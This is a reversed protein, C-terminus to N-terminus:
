CGTLFNHVNSSLPIKFQLASRPAPMDQHIQVRRVVFGWPLLAEARLTEGFGARRSRQEETGSRQRTHEMTVGRRRARKPFVAIDVIRKRATLQCCLHYCVPLMNGSKRIQGCYSRNDM